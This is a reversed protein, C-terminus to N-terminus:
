GVKGHGAAQAAEAAAQKLAAETLSPDDGRLIVDAPAEGPAAPCEVYDLVDAVVLTHDRTELTKGELGYDSLRERGKGGLQRDVLQFGLKLYAFCGTLVRYGCYDALRIESGAARAAAELREFKDGSSGSTTGLVHLHPRHHTTLVQVGSTAESTAPARRRLGHRLGGGSELWCLLVGALAVQSHGHMRQM